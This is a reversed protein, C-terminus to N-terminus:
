GSGGAYLRAPGTHLIAKAYALAEEERFYGRSVRGALTEALVDRFAALKGYSWELNYADSYFGNVKTKPLMEIREDLYMKQYFPSNAYWWTSNVFVNPFCRSLVTAPQLLSPSALFLDFSIAPFRQFPAAMSQLSAPRGDVLAVGEVASRDVGCFLQVVCEADALRGFLDDLARSALINRSASDASSGPRTERAFAGEVDAAAETYLFDHRVDVAFVRTGADLHRDVAFGLASLVDSAGRLPRGACAELQELAPETALEYPLPGIKASPVFFEPDCPAVGAAEFLPLVVVSKDILALDKQVRAARGPEKGAERFARAADEWVGPRELPVGGLDEIIRRLTKFTHTNDIHELLPALLSLDEGAREIDRHPVGASVLETVIYHYLVLDVLDRCLPQEPNVHAHCDIVPIRALEQELRRRVTREDDM